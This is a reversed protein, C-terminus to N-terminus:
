DNIEARLQEVELEAQTKFIEYNKEAIKLKAKTLKRSIPM